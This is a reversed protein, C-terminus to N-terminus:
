FTFLVIHLLCLYYLYSMCGGVFLQTYIRILCLKLASITVSLLVRFYSCLSVYYHTFPEDRVLKGNKEVPLRKGSQRTEM